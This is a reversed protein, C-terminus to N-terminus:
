LLLRRQLEKVNPAAVTSCVAAIFTTGAPPSRRVDPDGENVVVAHQLAAVEADLDSVRQQELVM